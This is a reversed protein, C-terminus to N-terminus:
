LGEWLGNNVMLEALKQTLGFNLMALDNYNVSKNSWTCVFKNNKTSIEVIPKKSEKFSIAEAESDFSQSFISESVLFDLGVQELEQAIVGFQDQNAADEYQFKRWRIKAVKKLIAEDIEEINKKMKIDSMKNSGSFTM